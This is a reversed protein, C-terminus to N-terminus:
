WSGGGGGSGGAASSGGGGSGGGSFGGGGAGSNATNGLAGASLTAAASAAQAGARADNWDAAMGKAAEEDAHTFNMAATTLHDGLNFSDLNLDNLQKQLLAFTAKANQAASGEWSGLADIISGVRKKCDAVADAASSFERAVDLTKQFDIKITGAM